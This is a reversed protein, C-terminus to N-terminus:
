SCIDLLPESTIIILFFYCFIECRLQLWQNTQSFATDERTNNHEHQILFRVMSFNVEDLQAPPSTCSPPCNAKAGATPNFYGPASQWTVKLSVRELRRSVLSRKCSTLVNFEVRLQNLIVPRTISPGKSVLERNLRGISSQWSDAPVILSPQGRSYRDAQRRGRGGAKSQSEM